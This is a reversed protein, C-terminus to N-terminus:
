LGEVSHARDCTDALQVLREAMLRAAQRTIKLSVDAITVDMTGDSCPLWQDNIISREVDKRQIFVM